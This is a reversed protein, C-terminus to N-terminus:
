KGNGPDPRRHKTLAFAPYGLVDLSTAVATRWRQIASEFRDEIALFQIQREECERMAERASRIRRASEDILRRGEQFTKWVRRAAEMEARFADPPQSDSEEVLLGNAAKTTTPSM